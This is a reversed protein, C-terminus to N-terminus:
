FVKNINEEEKREFDIYIDSYAHMFVYMQLM